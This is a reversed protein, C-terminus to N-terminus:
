KVVSVSSMELSFYILCLSTRSGLLTRRKGREDVSEEEARNIAGALTARQRESVCQVKETKCHLLSVLSRKIATYLGDWQGTHSFVAELACGHLRKFAPAFTGENGREQLQDTLRTHCSWRIPLLPLNEQGQVCVCESVLSACEWGWKCIYACLGVCECEQSSWFQPESRIWYGKVGPGLTHTHTNNWSPWRHMESGPSLSTRTSRAIMDSCPKRRTHMNTWVPWPSNSKVSCPALCDGDGTSSGAGEWNTRVCSLTDM